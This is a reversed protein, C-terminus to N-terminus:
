IAAPALLADIESRVARLADLQGASLAIGQERLSRIARLQRGLAKLATEHGRPRPEAPVPIGPDPDDADIEAGVVAPAELAERKAERLDRVTLGTKAREWLQRQLAPEDIEALELLLSTPVTRHTPVEALIEGPLRLLGLLRAVHAQSKGILLGAQQQTLGRSEILEGLSAAIELAHLDVRQVNEILALTAADAGELVIAPILERDLRQFAHYRRQGAIIQYRDAGIERVVVPQLLGHQEISHALSELEDPDFHKRPQDPNPELQELPLERYSRAEDVGFLSSARAVAKGLLATNSLNLKRPAM